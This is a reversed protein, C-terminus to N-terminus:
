ARVRLVQEVSWGQRLRWKITAYPIGLAQSWEVLSATVGNLTLRHARRSNCTQQSRTAWRLNGPEYGRDNDVRDLSYGAGPWRGISTDLYDRFAAFDHWEAYVRIGRSGYNKFGPNTEDHCRRLMNLWIKFERSSQGRRAEGHKFCICGCSTTNGTELSRLKVPKENGCQCCCLVIIDTNQHGLYRIVTLKGFEKGVPITRLLKKQALLNVDIKTELPM